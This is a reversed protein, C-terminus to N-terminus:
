VSFDTSIPPQAKNCISQLVNTGVLAEGNSADIVYGSIVLSQAFSVNLPIIFVLFGVLNFLEKQTSNNKRESLKIM